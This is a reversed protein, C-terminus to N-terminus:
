LLLVVFLETCDWHRSFWWMHQALCKVALARSQKLSSVEMSQDWNARNPTYSSLHTLATSIDSGPELLGDQLPWHSIYFYIETNCCSLREHKMELTLVTWGAEGHDAMSASLHEWTFRSCGNILVFSSGQSPPMQCWTRLDKLVTARTVFASSSILFGGTTILPPSHRKIISGNQSAFWGKLLCLWDKAQLGGDLVLPEHREHWLKTQGDVKFKEKNLDMYQDDSM